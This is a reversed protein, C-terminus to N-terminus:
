LQAGLLDSALESQDHGRHLVHSPFGPHGPFPFNAFLCNGRRQCCVFPRPTLSGETRDDTRIGCCARRVKGFPCALMQSVTMLGVLCSNTLLTAVASLSFWNAGDGVAAVWGSLPMFVLLLIVLLNYYAFPIPQAMQDYLTLMAGRLQMIQQLLRDCEVEGIEKRKHLRHVHTM